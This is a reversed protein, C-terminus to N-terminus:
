YKPIQIYSQINNRYFLSLVSEPFSVVKTYCAWTCIGPWAYSVGVFSPFSCQIAVDETNGVAVVLNTRPEETMSTYNNLKGCNLESGGDCASPRAYQECAFEEAQCAMWLSVCFPGPKGSRGEWIRRPPRDEPSLKSAAIDLEEAQFVGFAFRRTSKLISSFPM